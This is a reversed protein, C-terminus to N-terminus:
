SFASRPKAATCIEGGRSRVALTDSPELTEKNERSAVFSGAPIGDSRFASIACLIRMLSIEASRRPADSESGLVEVLFSPDLLLRLVSQSRRSILSAKLADRSVVDYSM